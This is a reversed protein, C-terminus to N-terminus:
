ESWNDSTSARDPVLIDASQIRIPLGRLPMSGVTGKRFEAGGRARLKSLRFQRLCRCGAPVRGAADNEGQRLGTAADRTRGLSPHWYLGTSIYSKQILSRM